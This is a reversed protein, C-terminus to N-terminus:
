ALRIGIVEVSYAGKVALDKLASCQGTPWNGIKPRNARFYRQLQILALGPVASTGEILTLFREGDRNSTYDRIFNSIGLAPFERPGIGGGAALRKRPLPWNNNPAPRVARAGFTRPPGSSGEM